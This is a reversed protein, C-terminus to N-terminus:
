EFSCYIQNIKNLHCSIASEPQKTTTYNEMESSSKVVELTTKVTNTLTSTMINSGSLSFNASYEESANLVLVPVADITSANTPNAEIHEM